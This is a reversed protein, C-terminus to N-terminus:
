AKKVRLKSVGAKIAERKKYSAASLGGIAVLAALGALAKKGKPTKVFAKLKAASSRAKTRITQKKAPMIFNHYLFIKGV